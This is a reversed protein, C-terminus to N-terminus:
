EIVGWKCRATEEGELPEKLRCWKCNHRSPKPPFETATTMILARKEIKPRFMAIDARTYRGELEQGNDIYKMFGHVYELKPYRHFTGIAYTMLQTAHKLENGFKKGSKWDYVVASTENEFEIADLKVRAWVDDATWGTPEWQRTFGWDGEVEVRGEAHAERLHEILERHKKVEASLEDTVGQIYDEILKHLMSGRDAAPGSPERAGEVKTLYTRYPCSEFTMLGSFSWTSVPGLPATWLDLEQQKEAELKATVAKPDFLPRDDSVPEPQKPNIPATNVAGPNFMPRDTM